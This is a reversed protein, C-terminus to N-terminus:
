EDRIRNYMALPTAALLGADVPLVVGPSGALRMVPSSCLPTPSTGPTARSESPGAKRRNQRTEEAMAGAVMPTYIHGPAIVNVRINDRGLHVAMTESMGIVGSKSASYPISALGSGARVGAISSMNIISGGGADIMKPAAYKTTLMM